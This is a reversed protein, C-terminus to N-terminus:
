EGLLAQVRAKARDVAGWNLNPNGKADYCGGPSLKDAEVWAIIAERLEKADAAAAAFTKVWRQDEHGHRLNANEDRIRAEMFHIQASTEARAAAHELAEAIPFRLLNDGAQRIWKGGYDLANVDGTFLWEKGFGLTAM